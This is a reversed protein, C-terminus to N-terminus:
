GTETPSWVSKNGEPGIIHFGLPPARVIRRWQRGPDKTGYVRCFAEEFDAERARVGMPGDDSTTCESVKGAERLIDWADSIAQQVKGLEAQPEASAAPGPQPPVSRITCTTEPQGEDDHGILYSDLEFDFLPGEVGDKVKEAVVKRRPSDKERDIRLMVEFAGRLASAGRLDGAKNPHHVTPFHVAVGFLKEGTEGDGHSNEDFSAAPSSPTLVIM